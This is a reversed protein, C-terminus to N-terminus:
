DSYIYLLSSRACSAKVINGSAQQFSGAFHTSTPSFAMFLSNLDAPDNNFVIKALANSRQYEKVAVNKKFGGIALFEGNPSLAFYQPFGSLDYTRTIQGVSPKLSIQHILRSNGAAYMTSEDALLMCGGDKSTDINNLEAQPNYVNWVQSKKDDSKVLLRTCDPSFYM